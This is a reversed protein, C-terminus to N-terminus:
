QKLHRERFSISIKGIITRYGVTISPGYKGEGDYAVQVGTITSDAFFRPQRKILELTWVKASEPIVSNSVIWKEVLKSRCAEPSLGQLEPDQKYTYVSVEVKNVPPEGKQPALMTQAWKKMRDAEGAKVIKLVENVLEQDMPDGMTSDDWEDWDVAVVEEKRLDVKGKRPCLFGLAAEGAGHLDGADILKIVGELLAAKLQEAGGESTNRKPSEFSM